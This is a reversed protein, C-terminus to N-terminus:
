LKSNLLFLFLYYLVLLLAIPGNVEKFMLGAFMEHTFFM